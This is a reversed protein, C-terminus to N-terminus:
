FIGFYACWRESRSRNFGAANETLTSEYARSITKPTDKLRELSSKPRNRQSAAQNQFPRLDESLSNADKHSGSSAKKQKVNNSSKMQLKNSKNQETILKAASSLGPSRKPSILNEKVGNLSSNEFESGKSSVTLNAATERRPRNELARIPPPSLAEEKQQSPAEMQRGDKCASSGVSSIKLVDSDGDPAEAIKANDTTSVKVNRPFGKHVPTKTHEDEEDEYICVARRKKPLRTSPMEIRSTADNKTGHPFKEGRDDLGITSDSLAESLGRHRKALPLSAEKGSNNSGAIGTKVKSGLNGRVHTFSKDTDLQKTAKDSIYTIADKKKVGKQLSLRTDLNVESHTSKPHFRGDGCGLSPKGLGLVVIIKPGFLHGHAQEELTEMDELGDAEELNGINQSLQEKTFHTGLDLNLGDRHANGKIQDGSKESHRLYNLDGVSSERQYSEAVNKSKHGSSFVKQGIGCQKTTGDDKSGSTKKNLNFSGDSVPVKKSQVCKSKKNESSVTLSQICNAYPSSSPKIDQNDDESQAPSCHDLKSDMECSDENTTEKTIGTTDTGMKEVNEVGDDESSDVSKQLEDTDDRLSCSQNSQLEDFAACIEKVAKAFCKVLKSKGQCRAVLKNKTESTFVQIDTPAIFGRCHFSLM